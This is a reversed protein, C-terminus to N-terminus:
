WSLAKRARGLAGSVRERARQYTESAANGARVSPKDVLKRDDIITRTNEPAPGMGIQWETLSRASRHLYNNRLWHLQPGPCRIIGKQGAGELQRAQAQYNSSLPQLPAPVEYTAFRGTAPSFESALKQSHREALDLMLALSVFQYGNTLPRVGDEWVTLQRSEISPTVPIRKGMVTFGRGAIAPTQASYAPRFQEPRYWGGAILQQKEAASRIRRIEEQGHEPYSGGIDSHVGPLELEIGKGADLSSNINTLSFNERFEDGATLHVAKNPVERMNLGLQKVDDDFIGETKGRIGNGLVGLLDSGGEEYSSVTDFIGVFNIVIEPPGQDLWPGKLEQHRSVFHRAAAAGRSFGFVDITIKKIYQEQNNYAKKIRARAENIGKTVKAPVGTTGSGFAYGQRVDRGNTTDTLAKEANFDETGIGEVYYSVEHRALDNTKNLYELIAVNSYYNGYSSDPGVTKLISEQAEMTPQGLRVNTNNRNNLTGDFFLCLKIELGEKGPPAPPPEGVVGKGIATQPTNMLHDFGTDM